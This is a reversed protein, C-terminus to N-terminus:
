EPRVVGRLLWVDYTDRVPLEFPSRLNIGMVGNIVLGFRVEQRTGEDLPTFLGLNCAIFVKGGVEADYMNMLLDPPGVQVFAGMETFVHASLTEVPVPARAAAALPNLPDRIVEGIAEELWELCARIATGDYVLSAFMGGGLSGTADDLGLELTFRLSSVSAEVMDLLSDELENLASVVIDRLTIM